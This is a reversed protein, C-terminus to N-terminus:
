CAPWGRSRARNPQSGRVPSGACVWGKAATLLGALLKLADQALPAATSPAASLIDAAAAGAAAAADALGACSCHPNSRQGLSCLLKLLHLFVLPRCAKAALVHTSCM